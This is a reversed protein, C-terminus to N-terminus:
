LVGALRLIFLAALAPLVIPRLRAPTYALVAFALASNSISRRVSM